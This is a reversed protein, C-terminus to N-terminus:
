LLATPPFKPHSDWNESHQNESLGVRGRHARHESIVPLVTTCVKETVPWITIDSAKHALHDKNCGDFEAYFICPHEFSLPLTESFVKSVSVLFPIEYLKWTDRFLVRQPGGRGLWKFSHFGSTAASVGLEPVSVQCFPTLRPELVPTRTGAEALMRKHTVQAEARGVRTLCTSSIFKTLVQCKDERVMRKTKTVKRGKM